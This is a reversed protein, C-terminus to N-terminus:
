ERPAASFLGGGLFRSRGLAIPGEVAVRFDIQLTAQLGRGPIGRFELVTVDPRPLGRRACEAAVDKTLIQVPAIGKQHRTVLYPSVSLWRRSQGLLRGDPETRRLSLSTARATHLSTFGTIAQELIELESRESATPARHDLLHPAFVLLRQYAPDVHFALHSSQETRTPGGDEDHGSFFRGLPRSGLQGQVRAMVARRLARAVTTPDDSLSTMVDFAFAGVHRQGPRGTPAMVGLGLFRGDGLVLPGKVAEDFTIEVHWLREKVFRTGHAFADARAGRRDFAERQVRLQAISARVGAHRLAAGVAQAAQGEERLREDASKAEQRQRSPEIRRRKTADPLALPTISRWSRASIEYRKLMSLDDSPTLIFPAVEGTDLDVSELGTFAWNVDEALLPAGSPVEVLVRRVARDAHEHGISPLPVIRVRHAPPLPDRGDSTRGVLCCEITLSESPVATRLREAAADRLREILSVVQTLPWPKSKIEDAQARLEYLTRSVARMYSVGVFRPKPPNTFLVKTKNRTGQVRLKEARYRQVLSALSGTAPCALRCETGAPEPHHLTGRHQDLRSALTEEDVVEGVAWAMDVGRGLQYVDSAANTLRTAHECEPGIAWAYLLPTTDELLRPHVVKKTRIGSVDTPDPLSDADNNPVFLTIQRGLRARPAAITPPPLCELWELASVLDTPLAGGRAGGAVLAQFVRAPAPPWEPAGLATGHFRDHLHIALLLHQGM